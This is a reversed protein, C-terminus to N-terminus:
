SQNNAEIEVEVLRNNVKFGLVQGRVRGSMIKTFFSNENSRILKHVKSIHINNVMLLPSTETIGSGNLESPVKELMIDEGVEVFPMKFMVRMAILTPFHSKTNWFFIKQNAISFRIYQSMLFTMGFRNQSGRLAFTCKPLEPIDAYTNGWYESGTSGFDAVIAGNRLFDLEFKRQGISILTKGGKSSMEFFTPVSCSASKELWFKDEFTDIVLDYRELIDRGFVGDTHDSRLSKMAQEDTEAQVNFEQAVDADLVSEPANFDVALRKDGRKLYLYGGKSYTQGEWKLDMTLCSLVAILQIM